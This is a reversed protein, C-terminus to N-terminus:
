HFQSHSVGESELILQSKLQSVQSKEQQWGHGIIVLGMVAAAVFISWYPNTNKVHDYFSSAQRRWWLENSKDEEIDEHVNSRPSVADHMSEDAILGETLFNEEHKTDSVGGQQVPLQPVDHDHSKEHYNELKSPSLGFHGSMFMAGGTEANYNGGSSIHGVDWINQQPGPSAGYVSETLAVVEWDNGKRAVDDGENNESM